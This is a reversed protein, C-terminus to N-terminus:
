GSKKADDRSEKKLSDGVGKARQDADHVAEKVKGKAQDTKGESETRRDGTVKGAVEKVKGKAKDTAGSM